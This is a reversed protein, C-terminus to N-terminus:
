EVAEDDEEELDKAPWPLRAEAPATGAWVYPLRDVLVARVAAVDVVVDVGTHAEVCEETDCKTGAWEPGGFRAEDRPNPYVAHQARQARWAYHHVDGLARTHLRFSQDMTPWVWNRQILELVASGAPLFAANALASTHVSLLLGTSAMTALQRVFPTAADFEV